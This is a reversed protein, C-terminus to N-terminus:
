IQRFRETDLVILGYLFFASYSAALGDDSKMPSFQKHTQSISWLAFHFLMTILCLIKWTSLKIKATAFFMSTSSPSGYPNQPFVPGTQWCHYKSYTGSTHFTTVRIEHQLVM